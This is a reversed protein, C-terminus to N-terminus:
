ASLCTKPKSYQENLYATKAVNKFSNKEMASRSFPVTFHNLAVL